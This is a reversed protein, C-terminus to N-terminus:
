NIHQRPLSSSLKRCQRLCCGECPAVSICDRVVYVCSLYYLALHIDVRTRQFCRALDPFGAWNRFKFHRIKSSNSLGSTALFNPWSNRAMPINYNIESNIASFVSLPHTTENCLRKDRYRTLQRWLSCQLYMMDIAIREVIVSFIELPSRRLLIKLQRCSLKLTNWARCKPLYVPLRLLPHCDHSTGWHSSSHYVSTSIPYKQAEFVLLFCTATKPPRSRSYFLDLPVQQPLM